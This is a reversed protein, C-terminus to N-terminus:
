GYQSSANGTLVRGIITVTNSTLLAADGQLVHRSINLFEEVHNVPSVTVWGGRLPSLHASICAMRCGEVQLIDADTILIDDSRDELFTVFHDALGDSRLIGVDSYTTGYTREVCWTGVINFAPVEGLFM